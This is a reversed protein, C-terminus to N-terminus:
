TANASDAAARQPMPENPVKPALEDPLNETKVEVVAHTAGAGIPQIRYRGSKM